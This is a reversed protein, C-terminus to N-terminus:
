EIIDVPLSEAIEQVAAETDMYTQAITRLDVPHENLRKMITAINEKEEEYMKRHMDGAEGIWYEKTGNVAQELSDLTQQMDRLKAQVLDAKELLVEPTVKLAVDGSIM